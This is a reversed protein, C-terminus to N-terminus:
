FSWWSPLTVPVRTLYGLMGRISIGNGAPAPVRLRVTKCGNSLDTSAVPHNWDLILVLPRLAASAECERYLNIVVQNVGGAHKLDWPVLFLWTHPEDTRGAREPFISCDPRSMKSVRGRDQRSLLRAFAM